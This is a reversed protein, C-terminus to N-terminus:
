ELIQISYDPSKYSVQFRKKPFFVFVVQFLNSYFSILNPILYKKVPKELKDQEITIEIELYDM